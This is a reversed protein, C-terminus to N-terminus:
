WIPSYIGNLLICSEDDSSLDGLVDSVAIVNDHKIQKGVDVPKFGANTTLTIHPVASLSTIGAFSGPTLEQVVLGEGANSRSLGVVKVLVHKNVNQLVNDSIILKKNGGVFLCTIHLPTKQNYSCKEGFVRDFEVSSVFVGYYMPPPVQYVQLKSTDRNKTELVLCIYGNNRAHELYPLAYKYVQCEVVKLNQNADAFEEPVTKVCDYIDDSQRYYSCNMTEVSKCLKTSIWTKGTIGNGVIVVCVKHQHRLLHLSLKYLTPNVLIADVSPELQNNVSPEVKQEVKVEEKIEEKTEVKTENLSLSEVSSVLRDCM